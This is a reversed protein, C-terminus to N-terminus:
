LDKETGLPAEHPRPQEECLPKLDRSAPCPAMTPPKHPTTLNPSHPKSYPHLGTGHHLTKEQDSYSGAFVPCSATSSCSGRDQRSSSMRTRSPPNRSTTMDFTTKKGKRPKRSSEKLVSELRPGEASISVCLHVM